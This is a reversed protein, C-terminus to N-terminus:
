PVAAVETTYGAALWGSWGAEMVYIPGPLVELLREGLEISDSCEVGGCYVIVRSAAEVQDAVDLFREEFDRPPLSLAGPLHGERYAEPMRADLVVVEPRGVLDRAREPTIGELGPPLPLSISAPQESPALLPIGRDSVHNVIVGITASALVIAVAGVVIHLLDSASMPRM